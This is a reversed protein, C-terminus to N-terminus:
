RNTENWERTVAAGRSARRAIAERRRDDDMDWMPAIHHDVREPVTEGLERLLIRVYDATVGVYNAISSASSGSRHLTVIKERRKAKEALTMSHYRIRQSM